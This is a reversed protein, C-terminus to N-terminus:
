IKNTREKFEYPELENLLLHDANERKYKLELLKEFLHNIYELFLDNGYYCDMRNIFEDIESNLWIM